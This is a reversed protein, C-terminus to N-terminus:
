YGIQKKWREAIAEKVTPWPLPPIHTDRTHARDYAITAVRWPGDGDWLYLFEAGNWYKSSIYQELSAFVDAECDASGKDRAFSISMEPTSDLSSIDGLAILKGIKERTDYDAVLMEGVGSLNGDWHIYIVAYAGNGLGYILHSHTAM